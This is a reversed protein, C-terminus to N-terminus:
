ATKRHPEADEAAPGESADATTQAPEVSVTTETTTTTVKAALPQADEDEDDVAPAEGEIDEADEDDGDEHAEGGDDEPAEDTDTDDADDSDVPAMDTEAEEAMAEAAFAETLLAEDKEVKRLRHGYEVVLRFLVKKLEASLNRFHRKDAAAEGLETFTLRSFGVEPLALFLAEARKVLQQADMTM